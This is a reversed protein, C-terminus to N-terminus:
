RMQVIQRSFVDGNVTMKVIFMGSMFGSAKADFNLTYNGTRQNGEYLNAINRGTMDFVEVKVKSDATLNYSVTANEIFPNPYINIQMNDEVTSTTNEATQLVKLNSSNDVKKLDTVGGSCPYNYVEMYSATEGGIRLEDGDKVFRLEGSKLCWVKGEPRIASKVEKEAFILKDGVIVGEVRMDGYEGNSSIITSTGTVINGEQKLDFEYEFVEIFSKHDWSFQMRKGVWKGSVDLKAVTMRDLSPTKSTQAKVATAAIMLFALLSYTIRKM